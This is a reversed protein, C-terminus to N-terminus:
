LDVHCSVAIGWLSPSNRELCCVRGGPPLLVWDNQHNDNGTELISGSWQTLIVLYPESVIDPTCPSQQQCTMPELLCVALRQPPLLFSLSEPPSESSQRQAWSPLLSPKGPSPRSCIRSLQCSGCGTTEWPFSPFWTLNCSGRWVPGWLCGATCFLPDASDRGPTGWPLMEGGGGRKRVTKM